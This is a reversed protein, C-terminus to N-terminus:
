AAIGHLQRVNSPSRGARVEDTINHGQWWYVRLPYGSEMAAQWKARESAYSAWSTCVEIYCGLAPSHFDPNYTRGNAHQLPWKVKWENDDLQHPFARCFQAVKTKGSRQLPSQRLAKRYASGLAPSMPRVGRELDFLYQPSIQMERAIARLSLKRNVRRTRLAAPTHLM